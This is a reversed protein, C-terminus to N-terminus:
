QKKRQRGQNAVLAELYQAAKQNKPDLRLTEQFQAKAQDIRDLKALAIGLNLHGLAYNPNLRVTELFQEAATRVDGEVALEVGLLYRAEWYGPQINVAQRLQGLAEPHRGSAALVEARELYIRPNGPELASARELLKLGEEPKKLKALLRGKEELADPLDPRISLALNLEQLAEESKGDRALLKGLYYHPGVAFPIQDRVRQWHTIAAPVDGAEEELKAFDGQLYFDEPAAATAEQYIARAQVLAEPTQRLRMSVFAQRLFDMQLVHDTQNVFPPEALRHLLSEYVRRRDWDTLALRRACQESTAWDKVAQKRVEEPLLTAVSEAVAHALHYNGDFNLHVHEYMSEKGSIGAPSEAALVAAGDVFHVGEVAHRAATERIVGNLRSDARFPLSDFDRALEFHRRAEVLNTQALFCQAWRYQLEAFSSDIQAAAQYNSIAAAFDSGAQAEIAKEYQQQWAARQSETLQASHQSAFPACDKLNSAVTSLVVKAGSNRAATLIEDLNSQFYDYVKQKRPDDSPVQHDLFMKMGGWSKQDPSRSAFRTLMQGLRTTKLALSFRILSLPPVRPGFITSPGFPGVFENNGMYLVWVDGQHHACERAIPLIAHSNIATIATCIVEFHTQPFRAELLVQLYRGLGFAPEPDGLAASEGLIFIRCGNKPKEAAMVMPSPIRALEPPFFRLGFQDNEVLVKREGIKESRFFGTPYGFGALRLGLELFGLVVVPLVISAFLRYVWRRALPIQRQSGAKVKAQPEPERIAQRQKQTKSVSLSNVLKLASCFDFVVATGRRPRSTGPETPRKPFKNDFL